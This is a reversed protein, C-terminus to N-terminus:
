DPYAKKGLVAFDHGPIVHEINYGAKKYIVEISNWTARLDVFVGPVLYKLNNQPDGRLNEYSYIADGAIIYSGKETEVLISISGPTHGPTPLIRIGPIVEQEELKIFKMQKIAKLFLPQLGIQFAEYSAYYPPIPNLAFHLEDETAIMEANPFKDVHGTHDWHLHTLIVIDIDRPDVSIQKLVKVIDQDPSVQPNLFIHYKRAHDEPPPGTDILVKKSAGEIYWAIFPQKVKKGFGRRYTRESQDWELTGLNLPKISIKPNSM